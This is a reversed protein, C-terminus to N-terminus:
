SNVLSKLILATPLFMNHRINKGVSREQELQKRHVKCYLM